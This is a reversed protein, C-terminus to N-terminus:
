VTRHSGGPGKTARKSGLVEHRPRRRQPELTMHGQGESSDLDQELFTLEEKCLKYVM